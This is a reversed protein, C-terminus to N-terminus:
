SKSAKAEETRIFHLTQVNEAWARDSLKEPKSIHMYFSLYGDLLRINISKKGNTTKVYRYADKDSTDIVAEGLAKGVM